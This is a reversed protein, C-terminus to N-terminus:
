LIQPITTLVSPAPWKGHVTKTAGSRSSNRKEWITLIM